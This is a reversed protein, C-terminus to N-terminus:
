NGGLGSERVFGAVGAERTARFPCGGYENEIRDLLLRYQDDAAAQILLTNHQIDECDARHGYEDAPGGDNYDTRQPMQARVKAVKARLALLYIIDIQYERILDDYKM